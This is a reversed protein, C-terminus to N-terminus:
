KRETHVMHSILDLVRNSYGWENDYWSVLKVFDDTLAIGADADFISSRADGIFDSSVVAKDTYGLIGALENESAYKIAAKIEEYSAKNKLRVTLDVVSVNATPVRFSMGTLKGNLEPIVKGVAKAAGTSSPIINFCAARGGRWDKKSPGDVTLQSATVAHVTTMLGELIGFKQNVVQALPALCNTTCSANSVIDMNKSYLNHNVGVVFMPADASPASIVVKRAGNQLHAGAKDKTTFVGTSEVVYEADATGWKINAPDKEGFVRIKKGNVHIYDGDHGVDANFLGHVTDHKLMYEMYETPIFPDNIAVVNILPNTEAARLVLRGIRGFGNIAVNVPGGVHSAGGSQANIIHLFDPKLSAGGVLFGDIDSQGSLETANGATVSGGYIIRTSNAVAASVNTKLWNRIGAHVDQAQAPSATLGTGIAWVPEYAVIVKSWDKVHAAYAALQDTVVQLTQNADRQTKTEGICAIVSLGKSLAYAAKRAVEENSEGKERRESHGVISYGAGADKLLEASVEGTYAGAGHHWVDQGSVGVDKRLRSAVSAVHLAPPAVVVEVNSPITATNLSDVLANAQSVSGNCKWNGGVFFKRAQSSFMRRSVSTFAM